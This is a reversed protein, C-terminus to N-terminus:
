ITQYSEPIRSMVWNWTEHSMQINSSDYRKLMDAFPLGHAGVVHLALTAAVAQFELEDSIYIYTYIHIYIYMHVRVCWHQIWMHTRKNTYTCTHINRWNCAGNIDGSSSLMWTQGQHIYEYVHIEYVHIHIYIYVYIYIYIYTFTHIYMYAYTNIYTYM